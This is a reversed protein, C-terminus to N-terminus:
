FNLQSLLMGTGSNRRIKLIASRSKETYWFAGETAQSIPVLMRGTNSEQWIDLHSIYNKGHGRAAINKAM